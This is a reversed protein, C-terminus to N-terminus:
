WFVLEIYRGIRLTRVQCGMGTFKLGQVPSNAFKIFIEAPGNGLQLSRKALLGNRPGHGRRFPPSNADANVVHRLEAVRASQRRPKL